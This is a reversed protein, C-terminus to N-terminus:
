APDRTLNIPIFCLPHGACKVAFRFIDKVDNRKLAGERLSVDFNGARYFQCVNVDLLDLNLYDQSVSTDIDVPQYTNPDYECVKVWHDGDRCQLQLRKIRETFLNEIMDKPSVNENVLSESSDGNVLAMLSKMDPPTEIDVYPEKMSHGLVQIAFRYEQQESYESRKIFSLPADGMDPEGYTYQVFGHTVVIIKEGIWEHSERFQTYTEFDKGHSRSELHEEVFGTDFCIKEAFNRGILLAFKYPNDIRTICDYDPSISDIPVFNSATSYIWQEDHRSTLNLRTMLQLPDAKLSKALENHLESPKEIPIFTQRTAELEDKILESGPSVDLIRLRDPTSFRINHWLLPSYQRESYRLVSGTRKECPNYNYVLVTYSRDDATWISEPKIAM